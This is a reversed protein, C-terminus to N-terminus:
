YAMVSIKRAATSLFNEQVYAALICGFGEFIYSVTIFCSLYELTEDNTVKLSHHTELGTKERIQCRM